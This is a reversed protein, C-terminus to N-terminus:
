FNEKVAELALTFNLKPDSLAIMAAGLVQLQREIKAIRAEADRATGAPVVLDLAIATTLSERAVDSITGGAAAEVDRVLSEARARKPM